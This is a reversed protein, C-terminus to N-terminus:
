FCTFCTFCRLVAWFLTFPHLFAAYVLCPQDPPDLLALLARKAGRAPGTQVLLRWWLLFATKALFYHFIVVKARFTTINRQKQALDALIL